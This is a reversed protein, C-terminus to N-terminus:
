KKWNWNGCTFCIQVVPNEAPYGYSDPKECCSAQPTTAENEINEHTGEIPTDLKAISIKVMKIQSRYWDPFAVGRKDKAVHIHRKYVYTNWKNCFQAPISAKERGLSMTGRDRIKLPSHSTLLSESVSANFFKIIGCNRLLGILDNPCEVSVTFRARESKIPIFARM